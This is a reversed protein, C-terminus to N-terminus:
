QIGRVYRMRCPRAHSGLQNHSCSVNGGVARCFKIPDVVRGRALL